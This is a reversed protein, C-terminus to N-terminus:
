KKSQIDNIDLRVFRQFIGSGRFSWEYRDGYSGCNYFAVGERESGYRGLLKKFRTKWYKM